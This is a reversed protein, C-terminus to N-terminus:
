TVKNIFADINNSCLLPIHENIKEDEWNWWKIQLLKNIQEKTFRYKKIRAPNGAVISYSPVDKTVVSKTAIVAGDGINVGSLITVNDGIWVENGIIVDGKSWAYKSTRDCNNWKLFAPFPYTSVWDTRHNGGLQVTVGAAISCFNGIILNGDYPTWKRININEHGYTHKGVTLM